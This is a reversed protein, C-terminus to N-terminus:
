ITLLRPNNLRTSLMDNSCINSAREQLTTDTSTAYLRNTQGHATYRWLAPEKPTYIPAPFVQNICHVTSLGVAEKDAAM